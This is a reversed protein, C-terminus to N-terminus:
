VGKSDPKVSLQIDTLSDAISKLEEIIQWLTEPAIRIYGNSHTLIVINERDVIYEMNDVEGCMCWYGNKQARSAMSDTRLNFEPLELLQKYRRGM